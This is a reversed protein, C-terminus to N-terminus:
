GVVFLLDFLCFFCHVFCCFSIIEERREPMNKELLFPLPAVLLHSKMEEREEAGRTRRGEKPRGTRNARKYEFISAENARDTPQPCHFAFLPTKHLRDQIHALCASIPQLHLSSASVPLCVSLYVFVRPPHLLVLALVEELTSPLTPVVAGHSM